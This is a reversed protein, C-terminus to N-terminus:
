VTESFSFAVRLHLPVSEQEGHSGREWPLRAREPRRECGRSTQEGTLREWSPQSRRASPRAKRGRPRRASCRAAELHAPPAPLLGCALASPWAAWLASPAGAPCLLMRQEPSLGPKYSASIMFTYSAHEYGNNKRQRGNNKIECVTILLNYVTLRKGPFLTPRWPEHSIYCSPCHSRDRM